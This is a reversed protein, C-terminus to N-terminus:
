LDAYRPLLDQDVLRIEIANAIAVHDPNEDSFPADTVSVIITGIQKNKGEVDKGMVPVLARAEPVQQVALIRPLYLMWGVGPRDKFVRQENHWFPAFTVVLAPWIRVASDIWTAAIRWDTVDPNVKLGFEFTDPRGLINCRSSLHATDSNGDAGNWLSISRLDSVGKSEHRLVALAATTPGSSDFAEYQLADEKSKDSTLFWKQLLPSFPSIVRSFRFLEDIQVEVSPLEDSARRFQIELIPLSYKM